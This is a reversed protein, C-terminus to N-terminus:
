VRSVYVPVADSEAMVGLLSTSEDYAERNEVLLSTARTLRAADSDGPRRIITCCHRLTGHRKAAGRRLTSPYFNVFSLHEQSVVELGECDCVDLLPV